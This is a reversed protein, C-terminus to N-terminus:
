ARCCLALKTFHDSREALDSQYSALAALIDDVTVSDVSCAFCIKATKDADPDSCVNLRIKEQGADLLMTALVQELSFLLGRLMEIDPIFEVLSQCGVIARKDGTFIKSIDRRLAVAILISEGVDVSAGTQICIEEIEAALQLEDEAPEIENAEKIFAQFHTQATLLGLSKLRKGVVFKLSGLHSVSDGDHCLALLKISQWRCLKEVIDNDVIASPVALLELYPECIPQKM